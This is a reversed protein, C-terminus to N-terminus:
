NVLPLGTHRIKKLVKQKCRTVKMSKVSKHIFSSWLPKVGFFTISPPVYFLIGVDFQIFPTTRHEPFVCNKCWLGKLRIFCIILHFIQLYCYSPSFTSFDSNRPINISKNTVGKLVLFITFLLKFIHVLIYFWFIVFGKMCFKFLTLPLQACAALLFKYSAKFIYFYKVPRVLAYVSCNNSYPSSNYLCGVVM